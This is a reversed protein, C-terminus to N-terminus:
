SAPERTLRRDAHARRKQERKAGTKARRFGMAMGRRELLAVLAGPGVRALAGGFPGVIGLFALFGLLDLLGMFRSLSPGLRRVRDALCSADDGVFVCCRLASTPCNSM